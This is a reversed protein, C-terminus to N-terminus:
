QEESEISGERPRGDRRREGEISRRKDSRRDEGCRREGLPQDPVYLREVKSYIQRIKGTKPDREIKDVAKIELRVIDALDKEQLYNIFKDRLQQKLKSPDIEPAPRFLIELRNRAVQVLQYQRLGEIDLFLAEFPIPPLAIPQGARNIVWFIDDTRGRVKILPFSLGCSCTEELPITVDGLEYRLLPITQNFLCSLYVKNGIQGPSVPTGDEFVSEVIFYDSNIHMGQHMRCESAITVGETTGYTQFLESSPFAKEIVRRATLTLPESSSTILWPEINLRGEMKEYALVELMTPYCHLINPKIQNLKEVLQELPEVVSLFDFQSVLKGLRPTILFVIYTIFHGNLVSVLAIKIKKKLVYGFYRIYQALNPKFRIGRTVSHAQIWDWEKRSYVFYAPTGTTGSTHTVIYKNKYLSGLLRHDQAWNKIEDLKLEPDTVVTDFNEMLNDKTVPPLQAISFDARDPDVDKYLKAYFPSKAKALRVVKRLNNLQLRSIAARDLKDHRRLRLCYRITRVLGM